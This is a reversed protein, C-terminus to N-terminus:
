DPKTSTCDHAYQSPAQYVLSPHRRIDDYEHHWGTLEVRARLLSPFTNIDLYEDSQRSYFSEVDGNKWPEGPPIVALDVTGEAWTALARRTLEPGNDMRLFVPLGHTISLRELIGVLDEGSISVDVTDDLIVSTHEDIIFAIKFVTGDELHDAQFDIAWGHNRYQASIPAESTSAGRRKRRRLIPM